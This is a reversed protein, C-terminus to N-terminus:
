MSDTSFLFKKEGKKSISTWPYFKTMGVGYLLTFSSSNNKELSQIQKVLSFNENVFLLLGWCTTANRAYGPNLIFPEQTLIFYTQFYM